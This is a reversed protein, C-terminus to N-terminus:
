RTSITDRTEAITGAEYRTHVEIITEHDSRSASGMRLRTVFGQMRASVESPQDSEQESAPKMLSESENFFLVISGVSQAPIQSRLNERGEPLEFDYEVVRDFRIIGEQASLAVPFLLFSLTLLPRMIMSGRSIADFRRLAYAHSLDCTTGVIRM